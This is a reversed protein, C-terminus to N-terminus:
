KIYWKWPKSFSHLIDIASASSIAKYIWQRTPPQSCWPDIRRWNGTYRSRAWPPTRCDHLSEWRYRGRAPRSHWWCRARLQDSLSGQVVVGAWGLQWTWLWILQPHINWKRYKVILRLVWSPCAMPQGNPCAIPHRNHTWIWVNENINKTRGYIDDYLTPRSIDLTLLAIPLLRNSIKTCINQKTFLAWWHKIYPQTNWKVCIHQLIEDHTM